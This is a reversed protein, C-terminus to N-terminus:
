SSKTLGIGSETEAPKERSLALGLAILGIFMGGALGLCDYFFYTIARTKGDSHWYFEAMFYGFGHGLLVGLGISIILARIGRM